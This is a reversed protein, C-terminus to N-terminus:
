LSKKRFALNRVRGDSYLFGTIKKKKRDFKFLSSFFSFGDAGTPTLLNEEDRSNVFFLQGEKNVFSLTADAEESYYTGAYELLAASGPLPVSTKPLDQKASPIQVADKNKVMVTRVQSIISPGPYISGANSLWAIALNMDPYFELFARYGATAGSHSINPWGMVTDVNLGAAYKNSQGNNFPATRLQNPLISPNGLQNSTYFRTWRLLDETTTLLGGNGYADENPMDIVYGAGKKEYATARNKVIRTYDNRWQTCSMGAPEFIYKRTFDALSQGSLREVIIAFLNYNSNSYIYEAGPIHNLHKQRCIIKLVDANTFAKSGRPWGTLATINGWDRLGSTHHMMQDLTITVGYDPLEPIYKRIDDQVLLKGQQQLLLIAAATFQKSVSGAEIISNTTLPTATELNAYGAAKSYIVQGNRSISLQAGPHEPLYRAMIKDLLATTDQFGQATSCDNLFLFALISLLNRM